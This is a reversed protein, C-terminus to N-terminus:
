SQTLKMKNLRKNLAQRSVGLIAAATAQNNDTRRMTEEVLEDCVEKLTPLSTGFAVKGEVTQKHAQKTIAPAHSIHRELREINLKLGDTCSLADLILFQLERINGPFDYSSLLAILNAPIEPKKQGEEKCAARLFYDVLMPIDEKRERLPPIHVHHAKLRYYLDSRFGPGDNLIDPDINTAAIIRADTKRTLDSGIPMYEREQVLRLLKLQSAHALDGIEDLFLTGGAANVVLGSRAKDAGTFAGKKHGFLTDAFINDDLGAVNVPVFEGSKGSVKHIACAVLEKGVGSEGTILVPKSSDAIAEIYKFISRMTMNDTIIHDFAEPHELKDDLFRSRLSTNERKLERIQIAHRIGSVLSNKDYTKVFFDFAGLKLCQVATELQNMGTIVLIPIDPHKASVLRILDEGSVNPMALDAAIVEVETTELISAVERSDNCCLINDIGASKLALSFSRLWTEEDDVLLVPNKPFTSKNM